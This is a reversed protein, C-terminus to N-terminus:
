PEAEFRVVRGREDGLQDLLVHTGDCVVV